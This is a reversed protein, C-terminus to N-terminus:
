FVKGAPIINMCGPKRNSCKGMGQKAKSSNGPATTAPCYKLGLLVCDPFLECEFSTVCVCCLGSDGM